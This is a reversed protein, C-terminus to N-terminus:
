PTKIGSYYTTEIPTSCTIGERVVVFEALSPLTSGCTYIIEEDLRKLTAKELASLRKLSYLVRKKDCEKCAITERVRATINCFLFFRIFIDFYLIDRVFKIISVKQVQLLINQMRRTM